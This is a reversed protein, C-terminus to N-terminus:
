MGGRGSGGVPRRGASAAHRGSPPFLFEEIRLGALTRMAARPLTDPAAVVVCRDDYLRERPYPSAHGESNLVVDGGGETFTAETPVTITRVRLTARPAREAVLRTLRPGVVFATSNTMTVTIVREDTAPAFSPFGVIRAAQQPTSRLPAILELTVIAPTGNGKGAASTM